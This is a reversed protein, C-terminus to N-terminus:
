VRRSIPCSKDREVSTTTKITINSSDDNMFQTGYECIECM